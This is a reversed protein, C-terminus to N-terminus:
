EEDDDWSSGRRGEAEGSAGTNKIRMDLGDGNLTGSAAIMKVCSVAVVNMKPEIYTKKM